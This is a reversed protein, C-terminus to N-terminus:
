SNRWSCSVGPLTIMLSASSSARDNLASSETRKMLPTRSAIRRVNDRSHACVLRVLDNLAACIKLLEYLEADFLIRPPEFVADRNAGDDGFVSVLGRFFEFRRTDRHARRSPSQRDA